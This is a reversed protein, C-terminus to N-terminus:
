KDEEKPYYTTDTDKDYAEFSNPDRLTIIVYKMKTAWVPMQWWVVPAEKRTSV